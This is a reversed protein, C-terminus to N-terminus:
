AGKLGQRYRYSALADASRLTCILLDAVEPADWPVACTGGHPPPPAFLPPWTQASVFSHTVLSVEINAVQPRSLGPWSLWIGLNVSFLTVSKEIKQWCHGNSQQVAYCRCHNWYKFGNIANRISTFLLATGTVLRPPRYPQSINLIGCQRSLRGVPPPLTTLRVYRGREIGWFCKEAELIWKQWLRLSGWVRTHGSPNPWNFFIWEGCRTEFGRDEAFNTGVKQPYITGRPWRSPDRRGYERIELGSGSSKRGPLEEIKSGM